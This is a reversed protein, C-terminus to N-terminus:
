VAKKLTTTFRYQRVIKILKLLGFTLLGMVIAAAFALTISGYIYQELHRGVNEVGSKTAITTEAVNNGIWYQGASYSLFVILPMALPFSVFSFIVVLTKNLKLVMAFFIALLTQFGWIPIIGMFIGFAASFAKLEDPQNPNYLQDIIRNLSKRSFKEKFTNRPKQYVCVSVARLSSLIIGRFIRFLKM